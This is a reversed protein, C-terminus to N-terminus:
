YSHHHDERNRHLDGQMCLTDVGVSRRLGPILVAIVVNGEILGRQRVPERGEPRGLDDVAAPDVAREEPRVTGVDAEGGDRDPLVTPHPDDGVVAGTPGGVVAPGDGPFCPAAIAGSPRSEEFLAPHLKDRWQRVVYEAANALDGVRPDGEDGGVGAAVTIEEIKIPM